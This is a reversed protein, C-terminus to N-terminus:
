KLAELYADSDAGDDTDDVMQQPRDIGSRKDLVHDIRNLDWVANGRGWIFAPPPLEGAEGRRIFESLPLRLYSAVEARTANRPIRGAPLPHKPQGRPM